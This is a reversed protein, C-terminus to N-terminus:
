HRLESSLHVTTDDYIQLFTVGEPDEGAAIVRKDVEAFTKGSAVVHSWDASLAVWPGAHKRLEGIPLLDGNEEVQAPVAEPEISM